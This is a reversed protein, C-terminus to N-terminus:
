KEIIFVDKGFDFIVKHENFFDSGLIGAIYIGTETRIGNTVNSIDCGFFNHKFITTGLQFSNVGSIAYMDNSGGIGNFSLPILTGEFGFDSQQSMDLISLTAGTDLLFYTEKGNLIVKVFLLNKTPSKLFTYNKVTDTNYIIVTPKSTDQHCSTAIFLGTVVSLAIIFKKKM